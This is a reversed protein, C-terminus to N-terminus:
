RLKKTNVISKQNIERGIKIIQNAKKVSIGLHEAFREITLYNNFYKIYLSEFDYRSMNEITKM